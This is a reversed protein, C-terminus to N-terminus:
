LIWFIIIVFRNRETAKSEVIKHAKKKKKARIIIEISAALICLCKSTALTFFSFFSDRVKLSKLDAM